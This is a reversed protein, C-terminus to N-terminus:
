ETRVESAARDQRAGAGLQTRGAPETSGRTPGARYERHPRSKATRRCPWETSPQPGRTRETAGNKRGTRQTGTSTRTGTSGYFCGNCGCVRRSRENGVLQNSEDQEGKPKQLSAAMM